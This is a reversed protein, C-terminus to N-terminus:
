DGKCAPRPGLQEKLGEVALQTYVPSGTLNDAMYEIIALQGDWLRAQEACDVSSREPRSYRPLVLSLWLAAALLGILLVSVRGRRTDL